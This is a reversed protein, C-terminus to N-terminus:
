FLHRNYSSQCAIGEPLNVVVWGKMFAMAMAELLLVSKGVGKEGCVIKRITKGGNGDTDILRALEVTEKRVLCAPRRFFGWGQGVKFAEVARLGDVVEGPLAVVRGISGDNVLGGISVEELGPVELANTNSLIIRKRLAKREGQAPPKSTTAQVGKKKIRLVREGKKPAASVSKNKKAPAPYAKSSTTTFSHSQLWQSNKILSIEAKYLPLSSLHIHPRPPM